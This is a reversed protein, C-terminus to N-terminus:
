PSAPAPSVAWIKAIRIDCPTSLCDQYTIDVADTCTCIHVSVLQLHLRRPPIYLALNLHLSDHLHQLHNQIYLFPILSFYDM